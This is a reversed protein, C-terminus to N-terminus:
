TIMNDPLHDTRNTYCIIVHEKRVDVRSISCNNLLFWSKLGHSANKWPLKLIACILHVFFGGHSVFAIHEEPQGDKDGHRM